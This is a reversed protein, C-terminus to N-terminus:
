LGDCASRLHKSTHFFYLAILYSFHNVIQNVPKGMLGLVVIMMVRYGVPRAVCAM